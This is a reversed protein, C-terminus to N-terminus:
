IGNEVLSWVENGYRPSGCRPRLRSYNFWLDMNVTQMPLLSAIAPSSLNSSGFLPKLSRQRLWKAVGWYIRNAVRKRLCNQISFKNYSPTKVTIRINCRKKVKYNIKDYKKLFILLTEKNLRPADDSVQVRSERRLLATSQWSLQHCM